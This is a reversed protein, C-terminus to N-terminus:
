MLGAMRGTSTKKRSDWSQRSRYSLDYCERCGFYKGRPPLYLKKVKNLCPNGGHKQIPCLFWWLRRGSRTYTLDIPVIYEVPENAVSYNLRLFGHQYVDNGPERGVAIESGTGIRLNSKWAAWSQILNQRLMPNIDFILCDEVVIKKM